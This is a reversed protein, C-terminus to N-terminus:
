SACAQLGSHFNTIACCIDHVPLGLERQRATACPPMNTCALVIGGREAPRALLRRGAERIDQRALGIDLDEQEAEILMRFFGRSARHARRSIDLPVGAAAMQRPTQGALCITYGHVAALSRRGKPDPRSLNSM